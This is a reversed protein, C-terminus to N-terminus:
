VEIRSVFVCTFLTQAICKRPKSYECIELQWDDSDFKEMSPRVKIYYQNLTSGPDIVLMGKCGAIRVQYASPIDERCRLQINLRLAVLAAVGLSMTGIGDTFCYKRNPTEVDPIKTV